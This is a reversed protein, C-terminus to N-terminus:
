KGSLKDKIEAVDRAIRLLGMHMTGDLSLINSDVKHELFGNDRIVTEQGDKMKVRTGPSLRGEATMLCLWRLEHEEVHHWRHGILVYACDHRPAAKLAQEITLEYFPLM